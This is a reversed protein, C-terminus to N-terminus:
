FTRPTHTTPTPLHESVCVVRMLSLPTCTSAFECINAFKYRFNAFKM